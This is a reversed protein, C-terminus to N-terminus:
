LRLMEIRAGTFPAIGISRDNEFEEDMEIRAGTFPAIKEDAHITPFCAFKLGRVRSPHSRDRGRLLWFQM